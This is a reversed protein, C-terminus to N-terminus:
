FLSKNIDTLSLNPRFGIENLKKSDYNSDNFLVSSKKKFAPLILGLIDFLIKPISWSAPEINQAYSLSEYISRSSYVRNDTANFIEGKSNRKMFLFIASVLDDVHIMSRKNNVKPPPPFIGKNILNLMSKLNGKDKPGYVLSPRIICLDLDKGKLLDFLKLEAERKTEGYINNFLGVYNETHCMGNQPEGSAKISSIYIFKKVGCNLAHKALNVTLNVNIKKYLSIKKRNQSSTDHAIGITHIITEIDDLKLEELNQKELDFKISNDDNLKVRAISIYPLNNSKAYAVCRSGIFGNGGTILIKILYWKLFSVHKYYAM